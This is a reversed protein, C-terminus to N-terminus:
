CTALNCFTALLNSPSFPQLIQRYHMLFFLELGHFTEAAAEYFEAAAEWSAAAAGSFEAAGGCVGAAPTRSISM